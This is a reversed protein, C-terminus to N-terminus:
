NEHTLYQFCTMKFILICKWLPLWSNFPPNIQGKERQEQPSILCVLKSNKFGICNLPLFGKQICGEWRLANPSKNVFLLKVTGTEKSSQRGWETPKSLKCLLLLELSCVAPETCVKSWNHVYICVASLLSSYCYLDNYSYRGSSSLWLEKYRLTKLFFHRFYPSPESAQGKCNVTLCDTKLM